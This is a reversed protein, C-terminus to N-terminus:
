ETETEFFKERLKHNALVAVLRKYKVPDTQIELLVIWARYEPRHLSGLFEYFLDEFFYTKDQFKAIVEVLREQWQAIETNYDEINLIDKFQASLEKLWAKAAFSIVIDDCEGWLYLRDDSYIDFFDDTCLTDNDTTIEFQPEKEINATTSGNVQTWPEWFNLNYMDSILKVTIPAQTLQFFVFSQENKDEKLKEKAEDDYTLIELLHHIQSDEDLTSSARYKNISKRNIEILNFLSLGKSLDYTSNDGGLEELTHIVGHEAMYVCLYKNYDITDGCFSDLVDDYQKDYEDKINESLYEYINWINQRRMLHLEDRGLIYRIWQITPLVMDPMSNMTFYFEDSYLEALIFLSYIAKNFQAKGVFCGFPKCKDIIFGSQVLGNEEFYSHSLEARTGEFKPISILHLEKGFLLVTSKSFLGGYKVIKEADELFAAKKDEPIKLNGYEYISGSM